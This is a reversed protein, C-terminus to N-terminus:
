WMDTNHNWSLSNPISSRVESGCGVAQSLETFVVTNEFCDPLGQKILHSNTKIIIQCGVGVKEKVIIVGKEIVAVYTHIKLQKYPDFYCSYSLTLGLTAFM